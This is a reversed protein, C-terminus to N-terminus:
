SRGPGAWERWMRWFLGREQRRWAMRSLAAASMVKLAFRPQIHVSFERATKEGNRHFWAYFVDVADVTFSATKLAGKRLQIGESLVHFSQLGCLCLLYAVDQIGRPEWLAM